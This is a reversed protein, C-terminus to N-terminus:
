MPASLAEGQADTVLGKMAGTTVGQAYLSDTLFLPLCFVLLLKSQVSKAM